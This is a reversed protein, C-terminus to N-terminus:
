GQKQTHTAWQCTRECLAEVGGLVGWHAGMSGVQGFGLSVLRVSERIMNKVEPVASQFRETQM